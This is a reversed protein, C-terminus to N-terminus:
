GRPPRSSFSLELGPNEGPTDPSPTQEYAAATPVPLQPQAGDEATKVAAQHRRRVAVPDHSTACTCLESDVTILGCRDCIRFTM